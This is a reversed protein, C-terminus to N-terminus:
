HIKLISETCLFYNQNGMKEKLTDKKFCFLNWFEPFIATNMSAYGKRGSEGCLCLCLLLIDFGFGMPLIWLLLLQCPIGRNGCFVLPHVVALLGAWRWWSHPSLPLFCCHLQVGSPGACAWYLLLALRCRGRWSPGRMRLAPVWHPEAASGLPQASCSDTGSRRSLWGPVCKTGEVLSHPLPKLYSM